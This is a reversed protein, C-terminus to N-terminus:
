SSFYRLAQENNIKERKILDTERCIKEAFKGVKICSCGVLEVVERALIANEYSHSRITGIIKREVETYRGEDFLDNKMKELKAHDRPCTDLYIDLQPLYLQELTYEGGCCPCVYERRTDTFYVDYNKMVNNYVFRQQRYVNRNLSFGLNYKDIFYWDIM